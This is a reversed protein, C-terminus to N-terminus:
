PAGALAAAGEENCQRTCAPEVGALHEADFPGMMADLARASAADRKDIAARLADQFRMSLERDHKPKPFRPFACAVRGKGKAKVYADVCAKKSRDIAPALRVDHAGICSSTCEAGTTMSKDDDMRAGFLPLCQSLKSSEVCARAEPSFGRLPSNAEGAPEPEASPEPEPETRPPKEDPAKPAIEAVVVPEAKEEPTRPDQPPTCASALTLACGVLLRSRAMTSLSCPRARSPERAHGCTM